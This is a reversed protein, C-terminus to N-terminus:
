EAELAQAAHQLADIADDVHALHTRFSLISARLHLRGHIRTSSM